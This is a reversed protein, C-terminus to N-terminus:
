KKVCKPKLTVDILFDRKNKDCAKYVLYMVHLFDELTDVNTLYKKGKKKWKIDQPSKIM